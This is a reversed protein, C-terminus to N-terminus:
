DLLKRLRDQLKARTEEISANEDAEQEIKAVEPDYWEEIERYKQGQRTVVRINETYVPRGDLFLKIRGDVFRRIELDREHVGLFYNCYGHYRHSSWGRLALGLRKVMSNTREPVVHHNVIDEGNVGFVQYRQETGFRDLTEPTLEGYDVSTYAM